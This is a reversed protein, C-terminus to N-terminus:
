LRRRRIFPTPRTRMPSLQSPSSRKRSRAMWRRTTSSLIARSFLYMRGTMLHDSRSNRRNSQTSRRMLLRSLVGADDGPFELALASGLGSRSKSVPDSWSSMLIISRRARAPSSLAPTPRKSRTTSMSPLAFLPPGSSSRSMRTSTCCTATAVPPLSASSTRCPSSTVPARLFPSSRRWPTLVAHM